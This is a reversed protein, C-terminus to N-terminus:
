LQMLIMIESMPGQQLGPVSIVLVQTAIVSGM